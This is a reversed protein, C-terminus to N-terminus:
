LTYQMRQCEESCFVMTHDHYKAESGCYHCDITLNLSSEPATVIGTHRQSCSLMKVPPLNPIKTPIEVHHWSIDDDGLKGESGDGFMYVDGSKTVIGYHETDMGHSVSVAPPVNRLRYPSGVDLVFVHGNAGVFLSRKNMCSIYRIGNLNKVKEPTSVIRRSIIRGNYHSPLHGFMYVEGGETLIGTLNSACSIMKVCPINEIPTPTELALNVVNGHGLQGFIQSGFTFVKGSDSLLATHLLGCSIKQMTPIDLIERPTSTLQFGLNGFVYVRGDKSVFGSHIDGCSLDKAPPVDQIKRPRTVSHPSLTGDGVRGYAGNGFMYVEGAYTLLGTVTSGCSVLKVREPFNIPRPVGVSYNMDRGNGLKGDAGNGFMFAKSMYFREHLQYRKCVENVLKSVRCILKLDPEELKYLIKALLKGNSIPALAELWSLEKNAIPLSALIQAIHAIDADTLTPDIERYAHKM